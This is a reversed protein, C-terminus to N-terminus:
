AGNGRVASAISEVLQSLVGETHVATVSTRIANISASWPYTIPMAYIGSAMLQTHIREVDLSNECLIPVIATESTGIDVGLKKLGNRWVSANSQLDAVLGPGVKLFKDVMQCSLFANLPSIGTSFAAGRQHRIQDIITKNGVVYGGSSAFAKAFTGIRVDVLDSVEFHEVIGRGERGLQGVSCAEDVILLCDYTQAVMVIAPLDAVDGEVSFVGETILLPRRGRSNKVDRLMFELHGVDNHQFPIIQAGSLLCGDLISRHISEDIFIYDGPGVLAPITSAAALYASTFLLASETNHLQCLSHILKDHYTTYANVAISGHSHLPLGTSLFEDWLGRSSVHRGLGLYSNSCCHEFTTSGLTIKTESIRSVSGFKEFILHTQARSAELKPELYVASPDDVTSRLQRVTMSSDLALKARKAADPVLQSMLSLFRLSDVGLSDLGVDDPINGLGTHQKVFRELLDADEVNIEEFFGTKLAQLDIKKNVTLPIIERTLVHHPVAYHPLKTALFEKFGPPSFSLTRNVPVLFTVLSTVDDIDVQMTVADSVQPHSRCASNVEELELRYGNIKVQDDARGNYIVGLNPTAFGFDGTLYTPIGYIAGPLDSKFKTKTLEPQALYGLSIQTSSICIEGIQFPLCRSGNCDIVTVLVDRMGHGVPIVLPLRLLDEQDQPIEFYAVARQTETSGYLNIVTANKARRRIRLAQDRSLSSGVFLCLRLDSLEQDSLDLAGVLVPNLCVVNIKECRIWEGLKVPQNLIEEGPIVICAGLYLPTMIDRQLPDHGISSCMGFKYQGLPGFRNNMWEFFYTLSSYRGAVAKPTGTTGSTFTVIACDDPHYKDGTTPTYNISSARDYLDSSGYEESELGPVRRDALDIVVTPKFLAACSKIYDDPHRPDIISVVAGIKFAALFAVIMDISRTPLLLVRQPEGRESASIKEAYGDVRRWLEGYNIHNTPTTIASRHPNELAIQELRSIFGEQAEEETNTTSAPELLAERVACDRLKKRNRGAEPLSALARLAKEITPGLSANLHSPEDVTVTVCTSAESSFLIVATKPKLSQIVIDYNLGVDLIAHLQASRRVAHLSWTDQDDVKRETFLNADIIDSYPLSERLETVTSFEPNQVLILEGTFIGTFVAHLENVANLVESKQMNISFSYERALQSACSDNGIRITAAGTACGTM